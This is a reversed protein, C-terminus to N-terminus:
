TTRGRWASMFSAGSLPPAESGGRLDPQHCKGCTTHYDNARLTAQDATYVGNATAQPQATAIAIGLGATAAGSVLLLAKLGRMTQEEIQTCSGAGSIETPPASPTSSFM